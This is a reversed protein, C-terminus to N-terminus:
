GCDRDREARAGSRRDGSDNTHGAGGGFRGSRSSVVHLGRSPASGHSSYAVPVPHGWAAREYANEMVGIVDITRGGFVDIQAGIAKDIGGLSAAWTENVVAVDSDIAEFGRGGRVRLGVAEFWDHTVQRAARGNLQSLLRDGAAAVSVGPLRRAQDLIALRSLAERQPTLELNLFRVDAVLVDDQLRGLTAPIAALARVLYGATALLSVSLVIQVVIVARRVRPRSTGGVRPGLRLGDLVDFGTARWAPLLGAIVTVVIPLALSFLFVRVDAAVMVPLILASVRLAQTTIGWAAVGAAVAVLGTEFALLRAVQPRTAGLSVRVALEHTRGVARSLSVAAVNACAIALIMLPVAMLAAVGGARDIFTMNPEFLHFPVLRVATLPDRRPREANLQGTLFELGAEAHKRSVGEALRAVVSPNGITVADPGRRQAMPVWIDGRDEPAEGIQPTRLGAFGAPLVGIITFTEPGIRIPIGVAAGVDGFHRTAFQRSLVAVAMASRDDDRREILRGAIPQTGLTEFYGGSVYKGRATTAVANVSAAFRSSDEAGIATLGPLGAPLAIYDGAELAHLERPSGSEGIVRVLTDRDRVGPVDGALIANVVGFMLVTLTSGLTLCLFVTLTQGPARRLARCADRLDSLSGSTVSARTRPFARHHM